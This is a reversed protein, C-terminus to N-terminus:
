CNSVTGSGCVGGVNSRGSVAGSVVRINRLTGGSSGFLGVNDNLGSIKLNSLTYNVGDFTGSFASIPTWEINLLDINVEQRFTGNLRTQILQFESYTGIPIYLMGVYERM